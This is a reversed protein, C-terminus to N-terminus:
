MNKKLKKMNSCMKSIHKKLLFNGGICHNKLFIRQCLLTLAYFSQNLGSMSRHWSYWTPKSVRVYDSTLNGCIRTDFMNVDDTANGVPLDSFIDESAVSINMKPFKCCTPKLKCCVESECSKQVWSGSIPIRKANSIKKVDWQITLEM